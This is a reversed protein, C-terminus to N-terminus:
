EFVRAFNSDSFTRVIQDARGYANNQAYLHLQINAADYYFFEGKKSDGNEDAYEFSIRNWDDHNQITTFTFSKGDGTLYEPNYIEYYRGTVTAGDVSTIEFFQEGLKVFGDATEGVVESKYLGEYKKGLSLRNEAAAQIKLGETSIPEVATANISTVNASIEVSYTHSNGDKDDGVFAASLILSELIGGSNEVAKGSVDQVYINAKPHPVGYNEATYESLAAYKLFFSSLANVLPPVSTDTLNGIYLKKGDNEDTQILDQMSGVFADVIKEADQVDERQFFDEILKEESGKVRTTAYNNGRSDKHIYLDPGNYIYSESTEDMETTTSEEVYQGGAIDYKMTGESVFIEKGDVKMVIKGSVTFNDTENILTASTTKIAQKLSYYGSGILADALASTALVAAGVVASLVATSKKSLNM